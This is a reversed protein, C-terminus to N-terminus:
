SPPTSPPSSPTASPVLIHLITSAFALLTEPLLLIDRLWAPNAYNPNLTTARQFAPIAQDFHGNAALVSGLNCLIAANQPMRNAARRLFEVSEVSNGSQHLAVGLLHLADPNDPDLSLFQRYLPIAEALRGSSHLAAAKQFIQVADPPM